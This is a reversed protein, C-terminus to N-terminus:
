FVASWGESSIPPVVERGGPILLSSLYITPLTPSCPTRDLIPPPLPDLLNHSKGWGGPRGSPLPSSPGALSTRPPFCNPPPKSGREGRLNWGESIGVGGWGGEEGYLEPQVRKGGEPLGVVCGGPDGKERGSQVWAQIPLHGVMQSFPLPCREKGDKGPVPPLPLLPPTVGKGGKRTFTGSGGREEAPGQRSSPGQFRLPPPLLFPTLPRPVGRGPAPTGFGM